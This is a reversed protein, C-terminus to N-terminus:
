FSVLKVCWNDLEPDHAGVDPVTSLQKGDSRRIAVYSGLWGEPIMGGSECTNNHCKTEGRVSWLVKQKVNSLREQSM